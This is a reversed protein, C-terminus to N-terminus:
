CGDPARKCLQYTAHWLVDQKMRPFNMEKKRLPSGTVDHLKGWGMRLEVSQPTAQNGDLGEHSNDTCLNMKKM